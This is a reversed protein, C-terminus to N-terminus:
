FNYQELQLHVHVVTYVKADVSLFGELHRLEGFLVIELVLHNQCVKVHRTHIAKLCSLLKPTNEPATDGNYPHSSVRTVFIMNNPFFCTHRLHDVLRDVKIDKLIEKKLM